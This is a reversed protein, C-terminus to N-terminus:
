CNKGIVKKGGMDPQLKEPSNVTGDENLTVKKLITNM